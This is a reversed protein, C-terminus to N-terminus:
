EDADAAKVEVVVEGGYFGCAGCVRHPMRPSGCNSCDQVLPKKGARRAWASRRHHIRSPGLRRKQLAM